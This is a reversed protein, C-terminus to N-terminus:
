YVKIFAIYPTYLKIIDPLDMNTVAGGKPLFINIPASDILNLLYSSKIAYGVNDASPIGANTIGVLHGNKDFLPGGSNGPQIPASIQYTVVDGEYGTKSSIIGDTIKVEDGLVQSMPYGMTFVSTGVDISYTLITYPISKLPTFKEDKIILLAIDNNKDLALVNANYEVFSGSSKLAVKITNANEIVHYNTAVVNDSILFGSGSSKISNNGTSPTDKIENSSKPYLKVFDYKFFGDRYPNTTFSLVGNNIEAITNSFEWGCEPNKVNQYIIDYRNDAIKELVMRFNGRFFTENATVMGTSYYSGELIIGYFKGEYEFIAIRSQDNAPVYNKYIGEISNSSRKDLYNQIESDSWFVFPPYASSYNENPNFSYHLNNIQEAIKKKSSRYSSKNKAQFDYIVEGMYDYFIVHTVADFRRVSVILIQKKDAISLNNVTRLDVRRLGIDSLCSAVNDIDESDLYSQSYVCYLRYGNISQANITLGSFSFLFLAILILICKLLTRRNRYKECLISSSIINMKNRM